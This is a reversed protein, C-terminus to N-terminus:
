TRATRSKKTETAVPEGTGAGPLVTVITSRGELAIRGGQSEFASRALPPITWEQGKAADYPRGNIRLTVSTASRNVDWTIVGGAPLATPAALLVSVLGQTSLAFDGHAVPGLPAAGPEPALLDNEDTEAEIRAGRLEPISLAIALRTARTLDVDGLTGPASRAFVWVGRTLTRARIAASSIMDIYETIRGTSAADFGRESASNMAERALDAFGIIVGVPGNIDHALGAAIKGILAERQVSNESTM